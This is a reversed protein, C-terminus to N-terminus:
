YCTRMNRGDGFRGRAKVVGFLKTVNGEEILIM